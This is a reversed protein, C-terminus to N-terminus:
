TITFTQATVSALISLLDANLQTTDLPIVLSYHDLQYSQSFVVLDPDLSNILIQNDRPTSLSDFEGYMLAVPISVNSTDITPTKKGEM